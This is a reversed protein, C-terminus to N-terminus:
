SLVDSGSKNRYNVYIRWFNFLRFNQEPNILLMFFHKM